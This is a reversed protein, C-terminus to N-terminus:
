IGIDHWLFAIIYIIFYLVMTAIYITKVYIKIMIEKIGIPETMLKDLIRFVIYIYITSFVDLILVLWFAYYELNIAYISIIGNILFSTIAFVKIFNLSDM